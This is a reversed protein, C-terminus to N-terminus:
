KEIQCYELKIIPVIDASFYGKVKVHDGAQLATLQGWNKEPVYCHVSTRLRGGVPPTGELSLRDKEVVVVTGSVVLVRNKYKSNATGPDDDYEKTLDAATVATGAESEVAKERRKEEYNLGRWLIFPSACLLVVVILGGCCVLIWRITNSKKRAPQATGTERAM